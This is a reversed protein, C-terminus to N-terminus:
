SPADARDLRLAAVPCAAVASEAATGLEEPVEARLIELDGDNDLRLLDPANEACFGYGECRNEDVWLRRM